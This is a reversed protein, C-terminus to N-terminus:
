MMFYNLNNMIWLSGGILIFLVLGTFVFSLSNIKSQNSRYNMKLFCIAQVFFQLIASFLLIFLIVHKSFVPHIVAYFPIITLALCLVFGLFYTGLTKKGMGIDSAKYSLTNSM